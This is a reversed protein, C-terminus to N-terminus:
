DKIEPNGHDGKEPINKSKVSTSDSYIIGGSYKLYAWVYYTVGSEEPISVTATFAKQNGSDTLEASIRDAEPIDAPKVGEKKSWCFGAELGEGLEAWDTEDWYNGVTASATFSDTGIEDVSVSVSLGSTSFSSVYYGTRTEGNSYTVTAYSAIAYSKDVKLGTLTAKFANDEDLETVVLKNDGCNDLDLKNGNEEYADYEMWLFGYETLTSSEEDYYEIGSLVTLTTYTTKNTRVYALSPASLDATTSYITWSYGTSQYTETGVQFTSIAYSKIQYETNAELNEILASFSSVTEGETPKYTIKNEGCNELTLDTGGHVDGIDSSKGWIFGYEVLVGSYKMNEVSVSISSIGKVEANIDGMNPGEFDRTVFQKVDGYGYVVTGDTGEDKAYPRINYMTNPKLLNQLDAMFAGGAKHGGNTPTAVIHEGSAITLNQDLGDLLPMYVFGVESVEGDKSYVQDIYGYVKLGTATINNWEIEDMHVMPTLKETTEIYEESSYGTGYSNKAFARVLYGTSSSLGTLTVSFSGDENKQVGDTESVFNAEGGKQYQFGYTLNSETEEGSDLISCRLDVSNETVNSVFFEGLVPESRQRTEFEIIEGYFTSNGNSAFARFYYTTAPTLGTAQYTFNSYNGDSVVKKAGAAATELEARKNSLYFGYETVIGSQVSISASLTAKTQTLTEDNPYEAYVDIYCAEPKEESCGAMCLSAIGLFLTLLIKSYLQNRKMM